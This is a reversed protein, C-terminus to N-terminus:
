NEPAPDEATTSSDVVPVQRSLYKNIDNQLILPNILFGVLFISLILTLVRRDKETKTELWAVTKWQWVLFSIGLTVPLLLMVFIYRM